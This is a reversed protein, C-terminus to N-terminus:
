KIGYLVTGPSSIKFLSHSVIVYSTHPQNMKKQTGKGLPTMMNLPLNIVDRYIDKLRMNENEYIHFQASINFVM